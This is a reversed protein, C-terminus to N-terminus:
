VNRGAMTEDLFCFRKTVMIGGRQCTNKWALVCCKETQRGATCDVRGLDKDKREGATRSNLSYVVSSGGHCGHACKRQSKRWLSGKFDMWEKHPATEKGLYKALLKYM